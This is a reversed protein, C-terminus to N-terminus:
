GITVDWGALYRDMVVGDWDTLEGDGDIDLAEPVVDVSWGALYRALVVGDWDTIEGDGDTDGIMYPPAGCISCPNEGVFTHEALGARRHGCIDCKSDCASTYTHYVRREEGCIDCGKDCISSYTHHGAAPIIEGKEVTLHCGTCYLDGTYGDIVCTADSEDRLATDYYHKGAEIDCVLWGEGEYSSFGLAMVGFGLNDMLYENLTDFLLLINADVVDNYSDDPFRDYKAYENDAAYDHGYYPNFTGRPGISDGYGHLVRQGNKAYSVTNDIMIMQSDFFIHVKNKALIGTTTQPVMFFELTLGTDMTYISISVLYSELDFEAIEMEWQDGGYSQGYTQVYETLVGLFDRVTGYCPGLTTVVVGESAESAYEGASEAIRQYFVYTTGPELDYFDADTTWEGDGIRYEYGEREHLSVMSSDCHEVTPVAPKISCPAKGPTMFTCASSAASADTTATAAVRQHFTYTSNPRLATFVNNTTWGGNGIRYEYGDAKQLVVRTASYDIVVPAAPAEVGDADEDNNDEQWNCHWTANQLPTNEEGILINAKQAPSGKYYVTELNDCGAFAYESVSVISEPLTIEVLGTCYMFLSGDIGTVGDPIVISRIGVCERFAGFLIEKVSDPITVELLDACQYFACAGIMDVSDPIAFSGKLGNPVLVLEKMDKSYVVGKDDSAYYPNGEDVWVSTLNPCDSFATGLVLSVGEGLTVSTLATCNYFADSGIYEVGDPITINILSSCGEFVCYGLETLNKSIAIDALGSCGLFVGHGLSTVSDPITVGTLGTCGEFAWEGITTVPYGGLQSPIIVNGSISTSVATITAKGESVTYTYYGQTAAQAETPLLYICFVAVALLMVCALAKKLKQM